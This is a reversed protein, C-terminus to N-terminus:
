VIKYHGWALTDIKNELLYRKDDHPSLAIKKQSISYVNHLTSRISNQTRTINCNTNICDLYDKFSIKNKAVCKKIGKIVKSKDVRNVRTSYMKSRLGCFDTLIKGKYEDKMLGLQKCNLRPINFINDVTYDSTDFRHIDKKIEEYFDGRTSYIFSDTDTYLLKSNLMTNNKIYNYHFEYMTLKSIDLIAMGVTIAKNMKIEEKNMEIAALDETFITRSKFNPKSIFRRGGHQGFWKSVLKIDRHKRVNQLTKGFVANNM